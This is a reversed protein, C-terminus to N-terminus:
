GALVRMAKWYKGAWYGQDLRSLTVGKMVSVHMFLQHELYIGVHRRRHGTKFFVLDGAELRDKNVPVGAVSQRYATRPLEIGFLDRFTLYVFGSCDIGRKSLGGLQYRVARWDDLQAYLARRVPADEVEPAPISEFPTTEPQRVSCGPLVCLLGAITLLAYGFHKVTVRDSKGGNM